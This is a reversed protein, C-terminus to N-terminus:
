RADVRRLLLVILTSLPLSNELSDSVPRPSAVTRNSGLSGAAMSAPLVCSSNIVSLPVKHIRRALSHPCPRKLSRWTCMECAIDCFFELMVALTIM